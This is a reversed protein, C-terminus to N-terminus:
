GPRAAASARSRGGGVRGVEDAVFLASDVNDALDLAQMAISTVHQYSQAGARLRLVDVKMNRLALLCTELKGASNERRNRIEMVARRQRKLFALRRVRDESGRELPNAEAELRSIETEILEAGGSDQHNDLDSLSVALSRVRDYLATASRVVESVRERDKPPMSDILRVIEDRDGQAQRVKDAHPGAAQIMSEGHLPGGGLAQPQRGRAIVRARNRERLAKRRDRNFLARMYDVGEDFVDILERERPQRFVDRWDYGESWLKAYKFAMYISWIVTVGVFDSSGVVSAVVIVGNVFLYPAVKRRFQRVMPAEWRQLEEITPPKGFDEDEYAGGLSRPEARSPSYNNVPAMASSAQARPPIPAFDPVVGSDLAAVLANADPFRNIPDKELCMMVARAMYPPLDSRRQDVPTPRESLHKVLMAPTSSAVFPTEGTLMQYAVVGLSYIDSRGDVEREGAAQEPSMFAPTGIAMGTATLRNDGESIARAIGFDTVMPRGTDADLLINDPKIDRHVVGRGHAYALASTVDRLIRRTEEVELVGREHLRKALNDGSIYAMVFYVLGGSEDVSYIPVINPHSLQAATEAERLFRTKIESRFALEPPLLKIAVNRKLRRDRARYVIGMGGRGIESDLEYHVGLAREVHLRLESDSSPVAQDPM